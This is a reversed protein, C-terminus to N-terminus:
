KTIVPPPLLIGSSPVFRLECNLVVLSALPDGGASHDSEVIREGVASIVPKGTTSFLERLGDGISDDPDLTTGRFLYNDLDPWDIILHEFPNTSFEGLPLHLTNSFVHEEGNKKVTLTTTLTELAEGKAEVPLLDTDAHLVLRCPIPWSIFKVVCKGGGACGPPEVDLGDWADNVTVTCTKGPASGGKCVHPLEAERTLRFFVPPVGNGPGAWVSSTLFFSSLVGSILLDRYRM